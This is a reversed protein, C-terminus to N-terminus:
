EEEDFPGAMTQIDKIRGPQLKAPTNTREQIGGAHLTKIAQISESIHVKEYQFILLQQPKKEM